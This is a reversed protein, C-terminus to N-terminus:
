FLMKPPGNNASDCSYATHQHSCTQPPASTVAGQRTVPADVEILSGQEYLEASHAWPSPLAAEGAAVLGCECVRGTRALRAARENQKRLNRGDSNTLIVVIEAVVRSPFSREPGPRGAPQRRRRAVLDTRTFNVRRDNAAVAATARQRRRRRRAWGLSLALREIKDALSRASEGGGAQDRGWTTPRAARMHGIKIPPRRAVSGM